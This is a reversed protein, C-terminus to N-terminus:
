RWAPAVRHFRLRDGPALQGLPDTDDDRVVGIVPYGGTTPHDALFITPRGNPAVQVAGRVVGESALQADPDRLPLAPGDLRVGVRDLDSSATWTTTLLTDIAPPLFHEHRPGLVIGVSLVGTRWSGFVPSGAAGVPVGASVTDGAVLPAPGLGMTPSSSRSGLLVPASVGGAIALYSRLGVNPRAVVLRSGRPLRLATETSVPVGDRLLGVPAGAVAVVVDSLASFEGGGLLLELAAAGDPNGVLRNARRLSDRDVAGGSTVGIAAYGPRGLDQVTLQPGAAEVRLAASM